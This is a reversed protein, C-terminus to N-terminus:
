ANALDPIFDFDITNVKIIETAVVGRDPETRLVSPEEVNVPQGVLLGKSIATNNLIIGQDTTNGRETVDQLDQAITETDVSGIISWQTGGFAVIDGNEVYLDPGSTQNAGLPYYDNWKLIAQLQKQELVNQDVDNDIKDLFQVVYFDGVAPLSVPSTESWSEPSQIAGPGQDPVVDGPDSDFNYGFKIKSVDTVGATTATGVIDITRGFTLTQPIESYLVGDATIKINSPTTGISSVVKGGSAPDDVLTSDVFNLVRVGGLEPRAGITEPGALGAPELKGTGDSINEAYYWGLSLPTNTFDIEDGNEDLLGSGVLDDVLVDDSFTGTLYVLIDDFEKPALIANYKVANPVGNKYDDTVELRLRAPEIEDSGDPNQGGTGIFIPNVDVLNEIEIQIGDGPANPGLNIINNVTSSFSRPQYLGAGSPGPTSVCLLFSDGATAPLYATDIKTTVDTLDNLEKVDSGGGSNLFDNADALVFGPKQENGDERSVRSDVYQLLWFANPRDVRKDAVVAPQGAADRFKIYDDTNVDNLDNLIILSNEGNNDGDVVLNLVNEALNEFPTKFTAGGRNLLFQDTNLILTQPNVAM